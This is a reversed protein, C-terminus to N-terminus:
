WKLLDEVTFRKKKGRTQFNLLKQYIPNESYEIPNSVTEKVTSIRDNRVETDADRVISLHQLKEKTM